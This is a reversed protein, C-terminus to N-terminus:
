SEKFENESDIEWSLSEICKEAEKPTNPLKHATESWFLFNKGGIEEEYALCNSDDVTGCLFTIQKNGIKFTESM